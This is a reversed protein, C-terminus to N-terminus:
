KIQGKAKAIAVMHSAFSHKVVGETQVSGTMKPAVKVGVIADLMAKTGVLDKKATAVMADITAKDSKIKGEKAANEVMAIADKEDAVAKAIADEAEDADNKAKMADYKDKLDKLEKEKDEIKKKFEDREKESASVKNEIAAIADLASEETADPNLNLKANVKKMSIIPKELAKNFIKAAEKWSAKADGFTMRPKNFDGSDERDNAFGKEIAETANMWTEKDMMEAIQAEPLGCRRLMINLSEKMLDLSEKNDGGYPNHIMLLAYDSMTRRKGACFIVASISAAIGANITHVPTKTKLIADYISMGDMVVGGVSNIRIEIAKKGLTDLFMLERAFQPGDIGMGDTEDMGIHRDILMTPIDSESNVVYKLEV